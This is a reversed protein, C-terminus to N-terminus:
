KRNIIIGLSVLLDYIKSLADTYNPDMAIADQKRLPRLTSERILLCKIAQYLQPDIKEKTCLQSEQILLFDKNKAMNKENIRNYNAIYENWNGIDSIVPIKTEKVCNQLNSYLIGEPLSKIGCKMWQNRQKIKNFFQIGQHIANALKQTKEYGYYPAISIIASDAAKEEQSFGGLFRPDLEKESKSSPKIIKHHIDSDEIVKTRFKREALVNNYAILCSLKSKFSQKTEEGDKFEIKGVLYEADNNYDIEFEHRYQMYGNYEAANTKEKKNKELMHKEHAESPCSEVPKTDYPPPLPRPIQQRVEPLPLPANPSNIYIATYHTEIDLATKTKMYNAIDNWNGIGFLKIGCLLLIEDHVDWNQCFIPYQRPEVILFEHDLSHNDYEQNTSLCQLCQFFFPCKMCRAHRENAIIRNCLSCRNLEKKSRKPVYNSM